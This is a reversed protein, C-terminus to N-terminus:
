IKSRHRKKGENSQFNRFICTYILLNFKYTVCTFLMMHHLRQSLKEVKYEEIMKTAISDHQWWIASSLLPEVNQLCYFHFTSNYQSVHSHLISPYLHYFQSDSLHKTVISTSLELNRLYFYPFSYLWRTDQNENTRKQIRKELSRM